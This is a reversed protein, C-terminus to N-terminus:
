ALSVVATVRCAAGRLLPLDDGTLTGNLMV